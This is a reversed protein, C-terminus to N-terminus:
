DGRGRQHSYEILIFIATLFMILAHWGLNNNLYNIGLMVSMPMMIVSANRWKLTLGIMLILMLILGLWSGAGYFLSNFVEDALGM